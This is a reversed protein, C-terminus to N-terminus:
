RLEFGRGHLVDKLADRGNMGAITNVRATSRATWTPQDQRTQQKNFTDLTKNYAAFHEKQRSDDWHERHLLEDFPLRPKVAATSTADEKPVGLALGFLGVTRQPLGLIDAVKEPHNRAAGVYCGGLGLSEAAVVINQAAFAADLSAMLFMETYELAIGPPSNNETEAAVGPRHLDAVFVLFLPAQHVFAQNSCLTALEEKRTSDEVAVVSWTQLNSSSAASQGAALLVELTGKPLIPQDPDFQRVSKHSLLTRLTPNVVVSGLTNAEPTAGYRATVLSQLDSM